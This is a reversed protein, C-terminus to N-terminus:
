RLIKQSTLSGNVAFHLSNVGYYEISKNFLFHELIGCTIDIILPVVFQGVIAAIWQGILCGDIQTTEAHRGGAAHYGRVETGAPSTLVFTDVDLYIDTIGDASSEATLHTDHFVFWSAVAFVHNDAVVITQLSVVSMHRLLQNGLILFDLSAIRDTQTAVRAATGTRVKM